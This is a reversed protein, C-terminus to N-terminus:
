REEGTLFLAAGLLSFLLNPLWAALWPTMVGSRGFSITFGLTIWYTLGILLGLIFGRGASSARPVPDLSLALGCLMMVLCSLPLAFKVDRDVLYTGPDLGNRRLKAIYEDLETLSFEEPSLIAFSFDGPKAELHFDRGAAAALSGPHKVNLVKLGSFTWDRGNWAASDASYIARLGYQPGIQFIRVGVLRKRVADYSKVGVFSDRTRLWNQTSYNFQPQQHHIVGDLLYKSRRTAAPVITENLGFTALSLVASFLLLPLGIGIRSIGLGQLALLEGSRNLMALGLLVGTLCAIPTLQSTMLPLKLLLYEIGAPRLLGYSMLDDFKDIFSALLDLVLFTILAALFTEVFIRMVLWAVTPPLRPPRVRVSRARIPADIAAGGLGLGPAAMEM